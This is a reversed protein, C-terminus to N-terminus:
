LQQLAPMVESTFLKYSEAAKEGMLGGYQFVMIPEYEGVLAKRERHKALMEEPTGWIQANVYIDVVADLGYEDIAAKAAAYSQYGNTSEFHRGGFEYHEVCTMYYNAVHEYAVRRAEDSDRHCYTLDIMLPPPAEGGHTERYAERYQEIMPLHMTDMPGQIFAMMAVGLKGAAVASDPSMAVCTTRGKFTALPAPHVPVRTQPYYKGDNEVYGDELGRIIMAASEDFRERSEGMEIGFGEFERRALGRGMGFMARGDSLNDLLAMKEVVRMPNNWPLIVATTHLKANKTRGALYSLFQTNDPCMSYGPDFHHEVCGISEYGDDDAQVSLAIQDKYIDYDSQANGYNQILNTM